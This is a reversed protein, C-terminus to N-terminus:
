LFTLLILKDKQDFEFQRLIKTFDRFFTSSHDFIREVGAILTHFDQIHGYEKWLTMALIQIWIYETNRSIFKDSLEIKSSDKEDPQYWHWFVIYIFYNTTLATYESKLYALFKKIDELFIEKNKLWFIIQETTHDHFFRRPLYSQLKELVLSRTKDIFECLYQIKLDSKLNMKEALQFTTALNAETQCTNLLENIENAPLNNNQMIQSVSFFLHQTLYYKGALYNQEFSQWLSILFNRCQFLADYTAIDFLIQETNKHESETEKSGFKMNNEVFLWSAVIPCSIDVTYEINGNYDRLQRPYTKCTGSIYNEGCNKIIKCWGDKTLMACNGDTNAFFCNQKRNIANVIETHFPHEMTEYNKIETDTLKIQWVATCCTLPCSGGVCQFDNYWSIGFSRKKM